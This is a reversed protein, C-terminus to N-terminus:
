NSLTFDSAARSRVYAIAAHFASHYHAPLNNFLKQETGKRVNEEVNKLFRILKSRIKDILKPDEEGALKRATMEIDWDNESLAKICIGRLHNSLTRSKHSYGLERESPWIRFQHKRLVGIERSEDISTLGSDASSSLPTEEKTSPLDKGSARFRDSLYVARLIHDGELMAKGIAKYLESQLERANGAAYSYLLLLNMAKPSIISIEHKLERAAMSAFHEVLLPVDEPRERLAPVYVKSVIRALVDSRFKGESALRELDQNTAFIFKVSVKKAPGSGIGPEFPKGELPYLLLDQM